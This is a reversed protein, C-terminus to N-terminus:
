SGWARDTRQDARIGADNGVVHLRLQQPRAEVKTDIIEGDVALFVGQEGTGARGPIWDLHDASDRQQPQERSQAAVLDVPEAGPQARRCGARFSVVFGADSSLSSGAAITHMSSMGTVFVDVANVFGISGTTPSAISAQCRTRGGCGRKTSGRVPSVTSMNNASRARRTLSFYMLRTRIGISHRLALTGAASARPGIVDCRALAM